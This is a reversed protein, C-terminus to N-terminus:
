KDVPGDYEVKESSKVHIFRVFSSLFLRIIVLACDTLPQWNQLFFGLTDLYAMTPIELLLYLKLSAYEPLSEYATLVDWVERVPAKVTISAM